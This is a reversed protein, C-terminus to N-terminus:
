CKSMATDIIANQETTSLGSFWKQFTSFQSESMADLFQSFRKDERFASPALRLHDAAILQIDNPLKAIQSQLSPALAVMQAEATRVAQAVRDLGGERQCTQRGESKTIFQGAENRPKDWDPLGSFSKRAPVPASSQVLGTQPGDMTAIQRITEAPDAPLNDAPVLANGSQDFMKSFDPRDVM